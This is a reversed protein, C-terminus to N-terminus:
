QNDKETKLPKKQRDLAEKQLQARQRVAQRNPDANADPSKTLYKALLSITPFQFMQAITLDTQFRLCVMRHVQVILLSHGGLEFFNDHIGVQEIKLVEQWIEALIHETEDRPATFSSALNPRNMEPSPLSRLDIKGNATLPLAALTIFLSPIMYEPLFDGLYGRLESTTPPTTPATLYAVLRPDGPTDERIVVVALDVAPHHALVAEIEGLEIRFGRLKVQNDLRGLYLIRGDPLSRCQDGTRYLRDGPVLSFPDPFFREATLEPRNRYGRAVGDGGIYLEGPVGIPVPQQYSDLLYCRTNAIPRGITIPDEASTIQSLTSWITTETPGYMNWLSGSREILGAALDPPFAEGGCLIKLGPSGKWGAAMLLRWTAPTAQMITAGSSEFAEKLRSGDAATSSSTLVLRAGSILPLYLELGAIDFSLTTVSLLVDDPTIGPERQMSTLFNVLNRQTIQVGKPQGTSGSTYIIYALNEPSAGDTLPVDSQHWIVQSDADLCIMRAQSGPFLPQLSTETILLRAGSDQLMYALRDAPFQPDLPLYAAGTKQIALLSVLMEISRNLCIGVLVEQGAGHMRLHHALQNARRNLEDYTIESKEDRVAIAQPTKAAQSEFLVPLTLDLPYVQQTSNWEEIVRRRESENLIPLQSIKEDPNECVAEVLTLYHDAMRQITESEFLDTNYEFDCILGEQPNDWVYLSLDYKSTNNSFILPRIKLDSLSNEPIPSNQLIFMVQFIPTHSPDREPNLTEVLNEFPVAHNAFAELAINRTQKLIESFSPNGSLDFRLAITNVFFGIMKEIEQRDRNAHATGVILDEQGTYRYLLVNFVAEMFIYLTVGHRITEQFMKSRLNKPLVMRYYTGHTTLAKERPHDAPIELIPLRGHLKQKWYALQASLLEPNMAHRQWLAYDAYQIPLENLPSEQGNAYAQYLPLFEGMLVGTSWGDSIIHHMAFNLWYRNEGLRILSTRFLPGQELNFPVQGFKKSIQRGENEREDDPLHTLDYVPIKAWSPPHIIQSPKGNADTTFTTRLNEHRSTIENICKELAALDLAGELEITAFITYAINGPDYQDLFWLRMQSFSLPINEGRKARFIQGGRSSTLDTPLASGSKELYALIEEKNSVIAERLDDSLAGKPANVRLRSDEVYLRIDLSQLQAILDSINM